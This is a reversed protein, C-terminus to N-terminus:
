SRALCHRCCTIQPEYVDDQCEFFEKPNNVVYEPMPQSAVSKYQHRLVEAKKFTDTVLTGDKTILDGMQNNAKSFRKAYSYFYNPNSNM